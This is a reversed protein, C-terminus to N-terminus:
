WLRSDPVEMWAGDQLISQQSMLGPLTMDLARHIDIPCPIEGRVAAIFDRLVLYDGGGHWDNHLIAPPNRWVEPLHRAYAEQLMLTEADLWNQQDANVGRLWIKAREQHSRASEYAGDTGQLQYNTMAHPRDSVMDFRIKILRKKQTKALMTASDAAYAEGRPDVYHSGTDECCVREVRDREMWTLIPGLSHTPYTIGRIGSGWKRRWPTEEMLQKLEHIYEGEAYYVEGFMGANVLGQVFQNPRMYIYNEAMMYIAKSQKTARVLRKCEDVSVGATVESLVHINRSLAAIAQDAHLFMPTAVLVADLKASDLMQEYDTYAEEAGMQAKCEELREKKIDCVAAVVVNLAKLSDTFHGGRRAAGAVGIRIPEKAKM